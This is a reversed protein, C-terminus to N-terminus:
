SVTVSSTVSNSASDVCKVTDTGPTSGATYVGTSSNISGGSNNVLISYVYGTQTGGYATFQTTSLPVVIATQPLMVMPTIVINASQVVFQYNLATPTVTSTFPGGGSTALGCNTVLTNPDIMNVAAQVQNINMVAGIQPQLLVPLQALIQAINPPHIGDISTATFQIYVNEEIVVDWQVVFISGDAQTIQYTQAGKMNCGLSRQAYIEQAITAPLASGQTIVWIGHAPVGVASCTSNPSVTDGYNEIVITKTENPTNSLTAYLSNFFGQSAISTSALARLRFAADTEANVGLTSYTSPNNIVTVGQVVTVAVTITNQASSIAGPNLSQFNFTNTGAGVIVQTNILQWENGSGDSVTYVPQTTQDLGFLTLAKNTTIAVPQITFTGGLRQIWYVLTDLQTGVAQNIDRASYVGALIDEVDVTVQVFIQLMQGDQSSSSLDINPGYIQQYAITLFAVNEATTATTLGTGDIKNPM